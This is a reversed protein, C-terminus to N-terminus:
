SEAVYQLVICSYFIIRFSELFQYPSIGLVYQCTFTFFAFWLIADLPQEKEHLFSTPILGPQVWIEKRWRKEHSRSLTRNAWWIGLEQRSLYRPLSGQMPLCIEQATRSSSLSSLPLVWLGGSNHSSARHPGAAGQSESEEEVSHPIIFGVGNAVCAPPPVLMIIWIHLPSQM